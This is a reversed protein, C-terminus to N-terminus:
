ETKKRTTKLWGKGHRLLKEIEDEGVWYHKDADLVPILVYIHNLLDQLRVIGEISVTNYRSKGWQPFKDDLIYEEM